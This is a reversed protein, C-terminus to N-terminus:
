DNEKVVETPDLWALRVTTGQGPETDIQLSAGVEQAREDMINLGLHGAQVEQLEFGCGNDQVRLVLRGEEEFLSVQIQSAGSHVTTNIMAERAIRYFAITVKEPLEPVDKMLSLSIAAQSRARAGDVLTVLLQELTQRHLDGMRLEILMSRMEALAGRILRSLKAFNQRGLGADKELIHPTAEALVSATFLTQTVSDHLERALRNREEVTALFVAQDLLIAGQALTSLDLAMREVLDSEEQLLNQSENTVAVGLVGIVSQGIMVPALILSPVEQDPFCEAFSTSFSGTKEPPCTILRGQEIERRLPSDARFLEKLPKNDHHSGTELSCALAEAHTERSEWRLIFVLKAHFIQLIKFSLEQYGTELSKVSSISQHIKNIASLWELRLQLKENADNLDITRRSVLAELQNRYGILEAEEQKRQSIDQFAVVASEVNGSEDKMPSAWIELPIRRDGDNVEIDDAYAAQGELASHVPFKEVPYPQGSGEKKLSYYQIATELTRGASIDPRINRDPNTLIDFTRKNGYIPRRDNGYVVVALPLGELIQSLQHESSRLAQNTSEMEVKLLNVRDTLSISWFAALWLMGFRFFNENLNTSPLLGERVLLVFVVGILFGFWSFLFFRAPLFGTRWSILGAAGAVLVSLFALPIGVMGTQYYSTFFTFLFIGAWVTLLFHILRHLKPSRRKLELFSSTFMLTSAMTTSFLLRTAIDNLWSFNPWFYQAALGDYCASFLIISALFFIYIFHSADRLSYLVFLNYILIILLAGYYFGFFFQEADDERFFAERQWLILPLTMSAGNQFRVYYTQEEQPPLTMTFIIHRSPIDRSSFPRLIGSQRSVWGTGQRDPFYFDVYHLNAFGLELLWDKIEHSTNTVHFRVWYASNTFGLNPVEVQSTIFKPDYAPSSVDEITLSGSPDNLIELYLGLPYKTQEDSLVVTGPAPPDISRALAPVSVALIILVLISGAFIKMLALGPIPSGDLKFSYYGTILLPSNIPNGPWILFLVLFAGGM